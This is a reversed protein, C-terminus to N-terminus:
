YWQTLSRLSLAGIWAAKRTIWKGVEEFTYFIRKGRWLGSTPCRSTRAGASSFKLLLVYNLSLQSLWLLKWPLELFNWSFVKRDEIGTFRVLLSIDWSSDIKFCKLTQILWILLHRGISYSVNSKPCVRYKRFIFTIKSICILFLNSTPYLRFSYLM